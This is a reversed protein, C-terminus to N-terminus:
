FIMMRKCLPEGLVAIGIVLAGISAILVAAASIDKIRKVVPSFQRSTIFDMMIELVTNFAEAMWVGVIAIVILAFGKRDIELWWSLVLAVITAAAHAWANPETALMDWLGFFAHRFSKFRSIISFKPKGASDKM